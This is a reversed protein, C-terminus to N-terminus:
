KMKINHEISWIVMLKTKATSLQKIVVDDFLLDFDLILDTILIYCETLEKNLKDSLVIAKELEHTLYMEKKLSPIINKLKQRLELIFQCFEKETSSVVAFDSYAIGKINKIKSLSFQSNQDTITPINKEILGAINGIVTITAQLASKKTTPLKM